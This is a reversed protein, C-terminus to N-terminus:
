IVSINANTCNVPKYIIFSDRGSHYTHDTNITSLNSMYIGNPPPPSSIHMEENVSTIQMNLSDSLGNLVALMKARVHVLLLQPHLFFFFSFYEVIVHKDSNFIEMSKNTPQKNFFPTKKSDLFLKSIGLNTVDTEDLSKIEM